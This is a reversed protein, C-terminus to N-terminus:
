CEEKNHLVLVLFHDGSAVLKQQFCGDRKAALVDIHRMNLSTLMKSIAKSIGFIYVVVPLVAGVGAAWVFHLISKNHDAVLWGCFPYILEEENDMM